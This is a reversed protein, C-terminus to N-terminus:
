EWPLLVTLHPQLLQAERVQLKRISQSFSHERSFEALQWPIPPPNTAHRVEGWQNRGMGSGGGRPSLSGDVWSGSESMQDRVAGKGGGEYGAVVMDQNVEWVDRWGRM